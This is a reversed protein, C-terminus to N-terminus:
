GCVDDGLTVAENGSSAIRGTEAVKGVAWVDQLEGEIDGTNSGNVGSERGSQILETPHVHHNIIGAIVGETDGFGEGFGVHASSHFCVEPTRHVQGAFSNSDEAVEVRVRALNAARDDVDAANSSSNSQRGFRCIM